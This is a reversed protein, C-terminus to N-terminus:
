CRNGDCGGKLEDNWDKLGHLPRIVRVTLGRMAFARAAKDSAQKGAEDGDAAIIVSTVSEPFQMAPLFTAGAAVWVPGGLM